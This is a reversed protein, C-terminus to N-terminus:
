ECSKEVRTECYSTLWISWTHTILHLKQTRCVTNSLILNPRGNLIATCLLYMKTYRWGFKKNHPWRLKQGTCININNILTLKKNTSIILSIWTSEMQFLLFIAYNPHILLFILLLQLLGHWFGLPFLLQNSISDNMLMQCYPFSTTHM